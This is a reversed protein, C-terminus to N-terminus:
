RITGVADQRGGREAGIGSEPCYAPMQHHASHAQHGSGAELGEKTHECLDGRQRGCESSLDQHPLVGQTADAPLGQEADTQRPFNWRRVSHWCTWRDIGSYGDCRERQNAGQHRGTAHNGDGAAGEDGAKDDAAVPEGCELIAAFPPIANTHFPM